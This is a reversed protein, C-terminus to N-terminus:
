CMKIRPSIRCWMQSDLILLDKFLKKGGSFSLRYIYDASSPLCAKQTLVEYVKNAGAEVERFNSSVNKAHAM